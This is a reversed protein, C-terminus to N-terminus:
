TNIKILKDKVKVEYMTEDKAKLKIFGIKPGSICAGTTVDFQSGHRPCTIIKGELKGKSLDGGMHTCRGNIAFYVGEFNVILINKDGITFLKMQGAPIEEIKAIDIFSV